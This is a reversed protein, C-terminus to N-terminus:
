HPDESSRTPEIAGRPRVRDRERVVPAPLVVRLRSETRPLAIAAADVTPTPAAAVDAVRGRGTHTSEVSDTPDFVFAGPMSPLSLDLTVYVLIALVLVRRGSM